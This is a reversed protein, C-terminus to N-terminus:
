SRMLLLINPVLLSSTVPIHFILISCSLLQCKLLRNVTILNFTQPPHYINVSIVYPNVFGFILIWVKVSSSHSSPVRSFLLSLVCFLPSYSLYACVFAATVSVMLRFILVATTRKSCGPFYPPLMNLPKPAPRSTWM